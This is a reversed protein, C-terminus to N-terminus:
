QSRNSDIEEVMADQDIQIQDNFNNVADSTAKQDKLKRNRTTKSKILSRGQKQIKRSKNYKSFNEEDQLQYKSSDIEDIKNQPTSYPPLHNNRTILELNSILNSKRQQLPRQSDNLRNSNSTNSKLESDDIENSKPLMPTQLLEDHFDKAKKIFIGKLLVKDNDDMPHQKFHSLAKKIKVISALKLFQNKNNDIQKLIDNKHFDSDSSSSSTLIVNKKSFKLLLRSRLPLIVQTLLRLQRISRLLNVVDLEQELKEIGRKFLFHKKYSQNKSLKQLSRLCLCKALYDLIMEFGYKFRSRILIEDIIRIIQNEQLFNSNAIRELVNLDSENKKKLSFQKMSLLRKKFLERRQSPDNLIQIKQGVSLDSMQHNITSQVELISNRKRTRAQYLYLQKIFSGKFMREQFFILMIFIISFISEKFGGISELVDFISEVQRVYKLTKRDLKINIQAMTQVDTSSNLVSEEHKIEDIKFFYDTYYEWFSFFNDYRQSYAFKVKVNIDKKKNKQLTISNSDDIYHQVSKEYDTFDFNSNVFIYQLKMNDLFNQVDDQNKCQLNADQCFNLYIRIYTYQISKINGEIFLQDKFDQTDVCFYEELNQRNKESQALNEFSNEECKTVNLYTIQSKHAYQKENENNLYTQSFNTITRIMEARFSGFTEDFLHSDQGQLKFGIDFGQQWLNIKSMNDNGQILNKTHTRPHKKSILLYLQFIIFISIVVRQALTFIAGLLTKYRKQGKYTFEVKRGYVDQSKLSDFLMQQWTRAKKQSLAKIVKSKKANGFLGQIKKNKLEM